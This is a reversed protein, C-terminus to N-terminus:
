INDLYAEDNKSSRTGVNAAVLVWIAAGDAAPASCMALHLIKTFVKQQCASVSASELIVLVCAEPM